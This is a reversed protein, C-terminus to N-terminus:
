ENEKNEMIIDIIDDIFDDYGTPKRLAGDYKITELEGFNSERFDIRYEFLVLMAPYESTHPWYNESEDIVTSNYQKILDSIRDFQNKTLAKDVIMDQYNYTYYLVASDTDKDYFIQIREYDPSPSKENYTNSLEINVITSNELQNGLNKRRTMEMDDSSLIFWVITAIVLVIISIIILLKGIKNKM